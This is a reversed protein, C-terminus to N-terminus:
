VALILTVLASVVNAAIATGALIFSLRFQTQELRQTIMERRRIM